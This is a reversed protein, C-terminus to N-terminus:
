KSGKEKRTKVKYTVSNKMFSTDILPNSRKKKAITYPRNAPIKLGVISKQIENKAIEGVRTAILPTVVMKQRPLESRLYKKLPEEMKEIAQRFFPRERSRSTGFENWAAVNTVPTGDKYRASSFFGVDVGKIGGKKAEFIFKKLKEGGRTKTKVRVTM